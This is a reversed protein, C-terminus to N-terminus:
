FGQLSRLAFLGTEAVSQNYVFLCVFLCVFCFLFWFCFEFVFSFCFTFFIVLIFFFVVFFFFFVFFCLLKSLENFFVFLLITSYELDAVKSSQGRGKEGHLWHTCVMAKSISDMERSYVFM